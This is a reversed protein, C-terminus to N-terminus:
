LDCSNALQLKNRRTVMVTLSARALDPYGGGLGKTADVALAPCARDHNWRHLLCYGRYSWILREEQRQRAYSWLFPSRNVGSSPNPTSANRSRSPPPGVKSILEKSHQKAGRKQM